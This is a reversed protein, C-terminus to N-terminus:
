FPINDNDAQKFPNCSDQSHHYESVRQYALAAQDIIIRDILEECIHLGYDVSVFMGMHHLTTDMSDVSHISERIWFRFGDSTKNDWEITWGCYHTHHEKM